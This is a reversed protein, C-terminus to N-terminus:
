DRVQKLYSIVEPSYTHELNHEEWIAQGIASTLARRTSIKSSGLEKLLPAASALGSSSDNAFTWGLHPILGKSLAALAGENGEKAFLGPLTDLVLPSTEESHGIMDVMNLLAIRHEPSTTKGTKLPTLIETAIKAYTQRDDCKHLINQMLRIAKERTEANSSKAASLAAPVLKGPLIPAIDFRVRSLLNTTVSLDTPQRTCM